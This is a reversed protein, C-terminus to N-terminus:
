EYRADTTYVTNAYQNILDLCLLNRIIGYVIISTLKIIQKSKKSIFTRSYGFNPLIENRYKISTSLKIDSAIIECYIWRRISCQCQSRALCQFM